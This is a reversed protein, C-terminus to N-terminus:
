SIALFQTRILNPHPNSELIYPLEFATAQNDKRHYLSILCFHYASQGNEILASLMKTVFIHVIFYRYM